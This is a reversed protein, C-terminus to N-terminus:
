KTVEEQDRREGETLMASGMLLGKLKEGCVEQGRSTLM